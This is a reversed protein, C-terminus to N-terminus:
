EVPTKEKNTCKKIREQLEEVSKKDRLLSISTNLFTALVLPDVEQTTSTESVKEQRGSTSAKTFNKNEEMFTKKARNLDFYIEKETAKCM